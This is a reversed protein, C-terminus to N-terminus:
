LTSKIAEILHKDSVIAEISPRFKYTWNSSSIIGPVNIREDASNPWTMGQVLALYEQLLNIHFLSASHNSETLIAQLQQPTIKGSYQWHHAKAYEQSEAPQNRWWQTLTESDHTSVTTMSIPSYESVDIFHKDENWAREWRMVKTGCIGLRQLCQRVEPPVTGLDEGLPLMMCSDIMMRVIREGQPIWLDKNEPVFHGEKGPKGPPIAWIRFFGVIHDLRYLDYFQSAVALREKWWQYGSNEIANWNYIPFEWNQGEQSYQDPPAGASLTLNFLHRQYWVDASQRDILIPIDGKILVGIRSAEDKVKKFQEFCLFQLFTHFSVESPFDQAFKNLLEENPMQYSEPWHQWSEWHRQINVAKFVSYPLLWPNSAIFQRYGETHSYEEFFFKFYQFLISQKLSSVTPYDIRQDHNMDHLTRLRVLAGPVQDLHPLATLSIHIPNLAFASIASYPSSNGGSDNLPLLQIIDFGVQKAWSIMPLLDLFEGIGASSRSRLSFLPINIGRHQKIGIREWQKSAPSALLAAKLEESPVTINEM